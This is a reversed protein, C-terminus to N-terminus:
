QKAFFNGESHLWYEKANSRFLYQAVRSIYILKDGFYFYVVVFVDM